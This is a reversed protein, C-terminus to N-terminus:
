FTVVGRLDLIEGYFIDSEGYFESKGTYGRYILM